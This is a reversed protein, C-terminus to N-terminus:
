VPKLQVDESLTHMHMHKTWERGELTPGLFQYHLRRNEIILNSKMISTVLVFELFLPVNLWM